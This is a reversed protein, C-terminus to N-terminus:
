RHPQSAQLLVDTFVFGDREATEGIAVPIPYSFMPGTIAVTHFEGREACPDPDLPLAALFSRDFSRGALTRPVRRPDLCTVIAQFGADIM